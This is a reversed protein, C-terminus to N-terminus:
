IKHQIDNISFEFTLVGNTIIVNVRDECFKFIEFNAKEGEHTVIDNLYFFDGDSLREVVKPDLNEGESAVVRFQKEDNSKLRDKLWEKVTKM